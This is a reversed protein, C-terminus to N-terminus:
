ENFGRKGGRNELGGLGVTYMEPTIARTLTVEACLDVGPLTHARSSGHLRKKGIGKILVLAETPPFQHPGCSIVQRNGM